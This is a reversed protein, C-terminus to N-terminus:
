NVHHGYIDRKSSWFAKLLSHTGWCRCILVGVPKAYNSYNQHNTTWDEQLTADGAQPNITALIICRVETWFTKCINLQLCTQHICYATFACMMTKTFNASETLHIAANDDKTQGTSVSTRAYWFAPCCAGVFCGHIISQDINGRYGGSRDGDTQLIEM